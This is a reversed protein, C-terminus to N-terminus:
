KPVVVHQGARVAGTVAVFGDAFAGLRVGVLHHGTEDVVEVAYGGEALALLAAVPVVLADRATQKTLRVSVPAQDLTGVKSPDALTLAVDIRPTTENGQQSAVTGVSAVTADVVANDPLQVQAADGAKVLTQRAADLRVTVIRRTSTVDLVPAGPGVQGGLTVDVKTVRVAGPQFVVEAPTVTGTQDLGLSEQWRRVATGTAADFHGDVALDGAGFGLAVLNYELELIDAGDSVGPALTRYMPVAGLFLPVGRGDVEFLPQGRDIVSGPTPAATLTGQRPSTVSRADAYGLTGSVSDREVLDRREITATGTAVNSTAASSADSGSGAVVIAVGVGVAVVLGAALFGILARHRRM